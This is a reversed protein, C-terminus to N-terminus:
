DGDIRLKVRYVFSVGKSLCIVIGGKPMAGKRRFVEFTRFKGM